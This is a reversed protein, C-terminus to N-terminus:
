IDPINIKQAQILTTGGPMLIEDSSKCYFTLGKHNFLYKFWKNFVGGTAIVVLPDGTQALVRSFEEPSLKVISGMAKVANAMVAYHGAAAGAGATSM